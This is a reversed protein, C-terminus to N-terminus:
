ITLGDLIQGGFAALTLLLLLVILMILLLHRNNRLISTQGSRELIIFDIGFLGSLFIAITLNFQVKPNQTVLLFFTSVIDNNQTDSQILIPVKQILLSVPVEFFTENNNEDYATVNLISINKAVSTNIKFQWSDNNVKETQINNDITLKSISSNKLLVLFYENNGQSVKSVTFDDNQIKLPTLNVNEVPQNENVEIENSLIENNINSKGFHVVIITNNKINQYTGRAIGIGVEDFNGNLVNDRHTPSKMWASMMIEDESYGEALNEGAFLYDYNADKFFDWPSKGEPCYHAWCDTELMAEAKATASNVLLQNIKLPSLSQKEREQNHLLYLNDVNILANIQYPGLVSLIINTIFVFIVILTISRQRLILPLYNNNKNPIFFNLM